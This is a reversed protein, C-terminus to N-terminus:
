RDVGIGSLREVLYTKNFDAEEFFEKESSSRLFRHGEQM